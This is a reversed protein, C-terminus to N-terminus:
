EWIEPMSMVDRGIIQEPGVEKLATEQYSRFIKVIFQEWDSARRRSDEDLQQFPPNDAFLMVEQGLKDRENQSAGSLLDSLFQGPPYFEAAKVMDRYLQM